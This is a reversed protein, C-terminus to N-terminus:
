FLNLNILIVYIVWEIDIKLNLIIINEFIFKEISIM